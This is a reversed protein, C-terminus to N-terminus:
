SLTGGGVTRGGAGRRDRHRGPTDPTCRAAAAVIATALPGKADVAGRGYLAGDYLEVEISGPVTDMHGLIVVEGSADSEQTPHLTGVVNGAGDRGADFGLESMTEVLLAAVADEEGCLSPIRLMGALLDVAAGDDPIM